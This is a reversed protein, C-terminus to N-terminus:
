SLGIGYDVKDRCDPVIFQAEPYTSRCIQLLLTRCYRLDALSPRFVLNKKTFIRLHQSERLNEKLNLLFSLFQSMLDQYIKLLFLM